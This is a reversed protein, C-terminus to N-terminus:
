PRVYIVRPVPDGLGRVETKLQVEGLEAHEIDLIVPHAKWGHKPPSPFPVTEVFESGQITKQYPEAMGLVQLVASTTKQSKDAYTIKIQGSEFIAGIEFTDELKEKRDSTILLLAFITVVGLIIPGKLRRIM